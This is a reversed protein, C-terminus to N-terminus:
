FSMCHVFLKHCLIFRIVIKPDHQKQHATLNPKTGTYACHNCKMIPANHEHLHKQM